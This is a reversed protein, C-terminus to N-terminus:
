YRSVNLHHAEEAHTIVRHYTGRNRNGNSDVKGQVLLLRQMYINFLHFTRM